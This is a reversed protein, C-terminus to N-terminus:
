LCTRAIPSVGLELYAEVAMAMAQVRKMKKLDFKLSTWATAEMHRAQLVVQREDMPFLVRFAYARVHFCIAHSGTRDVIAQPSLRPVLAKGFAAMDVSEPADIADSLWTNLIHHPVLHM